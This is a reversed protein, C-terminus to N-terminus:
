LLGRRNLEAICVAMGICECVAAAKDEVAAACCQLLEEDNLALCQAEVKSVLETMHKPVLIDKVEELTINM